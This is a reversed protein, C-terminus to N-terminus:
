SSKQLSGHSSAVHLPTAGNRGKAIVNLASTVLEVTEPSDECCELHVPLAKDHNAVMTLYPQNKVLYKVTEFHQFMCALHLPTNGDKNQKENSKLHPDCRQKTVLYKVVMRMTTDSVTSIYCGHACPM